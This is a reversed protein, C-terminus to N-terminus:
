LNIVMSVRGNRLYSEDEANFWEVPKNTTMVFYVNPWKRESMNDFFSNWSAKNYIQTYYQKHAKIGNPIKFKEVICDVEDLLVVLPNEEDPSVHSYVTGFLTGAESPSFDDVFHVSNKTKLLERALIRAITSKGTGTKGYILATCNLKIKDHMRSNFDKIMSNVAHKQAQNPKIKYPDYEIKSPEYWGRSSNKEYRFIKKVPSSTAVPIKSLKDLVSSNGFITISVGGGRDNRESVEGFFWKGAIWGQHIGDPSKSSSIAILRQFRSARDGTIKYWGYGYYSTLAPLLKFLLFFCLPLGVSTWIAAAMGFQNMMEAIM